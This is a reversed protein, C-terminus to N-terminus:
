TINLIIVKLRLVYSGSMNENFPYSTLGQKFQNQLDKKVWYLLLPNRSFCTSIVNSWYINYSESIFLFIVYNRMMKFLILFDSAYKVWKHGIKWIM